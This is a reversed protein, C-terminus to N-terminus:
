SIQPLPNGAHNAKRRHVAQQQTGGRPHTGVRERWMQSYCHASFWTGACGRDTKSVSERTNDDREKAVLFEPTVRYVTSSCPRLRDRWLCQVHFCKRSCDLRSKIRLDLFHRFLYTLIYAILLPFQLSDRTKMSM